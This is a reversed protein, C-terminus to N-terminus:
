TRSIHNILSKIIVDLLLHRQEFIAKYQETTWDDEISLNKGHALINRLKSYERVGIKTNQDLIAQTVGRIEPDRRRKGPAYDTELMNLLSQDLKSDQSPDPNWFGEIFAWLSLLEVLYDGINAIRLVQELNYNTKINKSILFNYYEIVLNFTYSNIENNSSYSVTKKCDFSPTSIHETPIYEGQRSVSTPPYYVARLALRFCLIFDNINESRYINNPTLIYISDLPNPTNIQRMLDNVTKQHIWDKFPEPLSKSNEWNTILLEIDNGEFHITKIFNSGDFKINDLLWMIYM